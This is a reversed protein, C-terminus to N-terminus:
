PAICTGILVFAGDAEGATASMRGSAEDIVAGWVRENQMGQIMLQGNMRQVNTIPSTRAGDVSSLQRQPVNIRIIPPIGVEDPSSRECDGRRSCEIVSNLACLMPASGDLPAASTAIWPGLAVGVVVVIASLWRM